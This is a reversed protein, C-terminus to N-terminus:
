GCSWTCNEHTNIRSDPSTAFVKRKMRKEKEKEKKLNGGFSVAQRQYREGGRLPPFLASKKHLIYVRQYRKLVMM